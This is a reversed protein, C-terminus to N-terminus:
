QRDSQEQALLAQVPETKTDDKIGDPVDRAVTQQQIVAENV